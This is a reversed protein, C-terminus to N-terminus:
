DRSRAIDSLEPFNKKLKEAHRLQMETPSARVLATLFAAADAHQGAEVALDLLALLDSSSEPRLASRVEKAEPDGLAELAIALRYRHLIDPHLRLLRAAERWARKAFLVAVLQDFPEAGDPQLVGARRAFEEAADLREMGQLARSVQIHLFADSSFRAAVERLTAEEGPESVLIRTWCVYASGPLLAFAALAHRRREGLNGLYHHRWALAAHAEGSAPHERLFAELVGVSEEHRGLEAYIWALESWSEAFQPALRVLREALALSVGDFLGLNMRVQFLHKLALPHNSDLAVACELLTQALDWRRLRACPVYAEIYGNPDRPVATRQDELAALQEEYRSLRGLARSLHYHTEGDAPNAALAAKYHEIAGEDDSEAVRREALLTPNTANPAFHLAAALMEGAEAGRKEHRLMRALAVAARVCGPQLALVARYAERSEDWHGSHYLREALELRKRWARPQRALAARRETLDEEHSALRRDIGLCLQLEGGSVALPITVIRVDRVIDSLRAELGRPPVNHPMETHEALRAHLRKRARHLRQMASAVSIGLREAIEKHSHEDLSMKLPRQYHEPLSNIEQAALRLLQREEAAEEVLRAPTQFEGVDTTLFPLRRRQRALAKLCLRRAVELLWTEFGKGEATRDEYRDLGHLARIFTETVLDRAEIAPDRNPSDLMRRCLASVKAEHREWLQGFAANDGRCTRRILEQDSLRM